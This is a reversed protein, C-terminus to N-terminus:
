KILVGRLLAERTCPPTFFGPYSFGTRFKRRSFRNGPILQHFIDFFPKQRHASLSLVAVANAKQSM